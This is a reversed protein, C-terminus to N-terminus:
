TEGKMKRNKVNMVEFTAINARQDTHSNRSRQKRGHNVTTNKQADSQCFIVMAPKNLINFAVDDDVNVHGEM